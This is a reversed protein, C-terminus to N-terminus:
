IELMELKRREETAGSFIATFLNLKFTKINFVNFYTKIFILVNKLRCTEIMSHDKELQNILVFKTISMYTMIIAQPM